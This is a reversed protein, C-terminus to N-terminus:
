STVAACRSTPATCRRSSAGSPTPCRRPSGICSSRPRVCDFPEAALAALADRGTAIATTHVDGNGILEMTERRREEDGSVLLLSKTRREVFARIGGFASGLSEVDAPKALVARAGRRFAEGLRDHVSIVHVPIHRTDVDEKLRQLVRWGDIDPLQIDLTIADPRLERALMLASAGRPEIFAKFGNLHAAELLVRAFAPDDEVVLLVRDGPLIRNRDDVTVDPEVNIKSALLM